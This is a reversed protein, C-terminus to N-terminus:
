MRKIIRSQPLADLFYEKIIEKEGEFKRNNKRGM